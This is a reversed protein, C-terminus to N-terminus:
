DGSFSGNSLIMIELLINSMITVTNSQIHLHSIKKPVIQPNGELSQVQNPLTTQGSLNTDSENIM